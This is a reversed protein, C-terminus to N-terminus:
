APVVHLPLHTLGRMTANHLRRPPGALELAAIRQTMQLIIQRAEM